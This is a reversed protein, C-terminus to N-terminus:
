HNTSRDHQKTWQARAMWVYNRTRETWYFANSDYAGMHVKRSCRLVQTAAGLAKGTSDLLLNLPHRFTVPGEVRDLREFSDDTPCEHALKAAALLDVLAPHYTLGTLALLDDILAFVYDTLELSTVPEDGDIKAELAVIWDPLSDVTYQAIDHADPM